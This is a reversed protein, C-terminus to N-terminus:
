PAEGISSYLTFLNQVVFFRGEYINNWHDGPKGGESVSLFFFWIDRLSEASLRLLCHVWFSHVQSQVITGSTCPHLLRSAIASPLTAFFIPSVSRIGNQTRVLAIRQARTRWSRFPMNGKRWYSRFRSRCRFRQSGSAAALGPNLRLSIRLQKFRQPPLRKCGNAGTRRRNCAFSLV